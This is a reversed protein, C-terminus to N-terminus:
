CQGDQPDDGGGGYPAYNPLTDDVKVNKNEDKVEEISLPDIEDNKTKM